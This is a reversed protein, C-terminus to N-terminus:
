MVMVELIGTNRITPTVLRPDVRGPLYFSINFNGSPALQQVKAKYNNSCQNTLFFESDQVLGQITVKGDNSVDLKVKGAM